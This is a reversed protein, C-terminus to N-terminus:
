FPCGEQEIPLKLRIGQWIKADSDRIEFVNEGVVRRLEKGFKRINVPKFGSTECYSKYAEFIENKYVTAASNIVCNDEVFCLVPNNEVRYNEITDIMKKSVAFRGRAKLRKIGDIMWNLIGIREELLERYYKHKDDVGSFEKILPVILLRRYFARSKDDTRPMNNTAFILKCIPRFSFPASFKHDGMVCDHATIKKFMEDCVTGKAGIETAINLLKNHLQAVYHTKELQELQVECTNEDGLIGKLVDLMTSKGNNGEGILFLARDYTERTLCLGFFEQITDIYEADGVITTIAELWKPCLAQPDYAVNLRITSLFQPSHPKLIFTSLDLIGNELNLCDQDNFKDAPTETAAKIYRIILNIVNNKLCGFEAAILGVLAHESLYQYYGNKYRYFKGDESYVITHNKQIQEAMKLENTKKDKPKLGNADCRAASSVWREIDADTFPDRPNQPCKALAQRLAARIMDPTFGQATLSCAFKFLQTDQAGPPIDGDPLKFASQKAAAVCLSILWQPADAMPIDDPHHTAEWAYARGNIVSPPAIVGGGAAIIDLHDGIKSQSCRVGAAPPCRLYIHRGGSWSIAEITNPLAGHDAELAALSEPGNAGNKVDVDVVLFDQPAIAINADPHKGWIARIVSEDCSADLYGRSNKLPAKTKGVPYVPWGRAAYKLATDIM